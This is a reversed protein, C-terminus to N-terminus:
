YFSSRFAASHVNCSSSLSTATRGSAADATLAVTGTADSAQRSLSLAGVEHHEEEVESGTM